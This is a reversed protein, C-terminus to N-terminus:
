KKWFFPVITLSMTAIVVGSMLNQLFAETGYCLLFALFVAGLVGCLRIGDRNWPLIFVSVVVYMGVVRRHFAVIHM